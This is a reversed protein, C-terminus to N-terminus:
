YESYYYFDTHHIMLEGSPPATVCTKDWYGTCTKKGLVYQYAFDLRKATRSDYSKNFFLRINETIYECIIGECLALYSM